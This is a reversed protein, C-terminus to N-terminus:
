WTPSKKSRSVSSLRRTTIHGGKKYAPAGGTKMGSSAANINKQTQDLNTDDAAMGDTQGSGGYQLTPPSNLAQSSPASSNDGPPATFKSATGVIDSLAGGNAFKKVKAM